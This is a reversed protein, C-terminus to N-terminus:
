LFHSLGALYSGVEATTSVKEPDLSTAKFYFLHIFSSKDLVYYTRTVRSLIEFVQRM